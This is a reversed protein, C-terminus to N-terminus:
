VVISLFTGLTFTLDSDWASCLTFSGKAPLRLKLTLAGACTDIPSAVLVSADRMQSFQIGKPLSVPSPSIATAACARRGRASMKEAPM